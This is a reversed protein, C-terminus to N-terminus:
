NPERPKVSREWIREAEEPSFEVVSGNRSPAIDYRRSEALVKALWARHLHLTRGGDHRIIMINNGDRFLRRIAKSPGPMKHASKKSEQAMVLRSNWRKSVFDDPLYFVIKTRDPRQSLPLHGKIWLCNWDACSNPRDQYIECGGCFHECETRAPKELEVIAMSFCCEGCEGCERM